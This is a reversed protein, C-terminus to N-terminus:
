YIEYNLTITVHITNSGPEIQTSQKTEADLAGVAYPIPRIQDGFNENYNVLRGLHFGAIQAAAEAKQKADSVALRRAENQAKLKDSVDFNVGGVQNAGAATASDIVSNVKNIDRIKVALNSSASYGTIKQSPNQYDYNPNISYNQTQIDKPDIGQSKIAESVKNIAANLQDQAARVTPGSSQVGLSINALDPKMSSEGEGTVSFTDTKTTTVSNVSFPIPGVLKTYTFLLLYFTLFTFLILGFPKYM